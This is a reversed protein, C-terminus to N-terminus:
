VYVCSIFTAKHVAVWSGCKTMFSVFLEIILLFQPMNKGFRGGCLWLGLNWCEAPMLTKKATNYPYLTERM